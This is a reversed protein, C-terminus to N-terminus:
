IQGEFVIGQSSYSFLQCNEFIKMGKITEKYYILKRISHSAALTCVFVVVVFSFNNVADFNFNCGIMVFQGIRFVVFFTIKVRRRRINGLLSIPLVSSPHLLFPSRPILITCLTNTVCKQIRWTDVRHVSRDSLRDHFLKSRLINRYLLLLALTM